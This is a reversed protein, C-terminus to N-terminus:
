AEDGLRVACEAAPIPPAVHAAPEGLACDAQDADTPNAPPHDLQQRAKPRANKGVVHGGVLHETTPVAAQSPDLLILEVLFGVHDRDM